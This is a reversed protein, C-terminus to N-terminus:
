LILLEFHRVERPSCQVPISATQRRRCRAPSVRLVATSEVKVSSLPIIALREPTITSETRAVIEKAGGAFYKNNRPETSMILGKGGPTWDNSVFYDDVKSQWRKDEQAVQNAGSIDSRNLAESPCVTGKLEKLLLVDPEHAKLWATVHDLRSRISNVKWSAVKM